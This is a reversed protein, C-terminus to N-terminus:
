VSEPHGDTEEVTQVNDTEGETIHGTYSPVLNISPAFLILYHEILLREQETPGDPENWNTQTALQRHNISYTDWESDRNHWVVRLHYPELTEKGIAVWLDFRGVGGVFTIDTRELWQKRYRPEM